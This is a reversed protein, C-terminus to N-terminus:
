LSLKLASVVSLDNRDKDAAPINDYDDAITLVLSLHSNIAAELSIEAHILSDESDETSVLGEIKQTLKSSKGIKWMLRQVARAGVYDNEIDGVEEFVMSPGAALSLEIVKSKLFYYGAEPNLKVRYDVDAIEDYLAEIGAGVFFRKTLLRNYEMLGKLDRETQEDEKEGENGTIQFRWINKKKERAAKADLTLLLTDSNGRTMNFGFAISKEWQPDTDQAICDSALCIILVFVSLLKNIITM